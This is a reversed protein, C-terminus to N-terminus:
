RSAGQRDASEVATKIGAVSQRMDAELKVPWDILFKQEGDRGARTLIERMGETLAGMRFGHVLRSGGPVPSIEFSWVSQQRRGASDRMAWAFLQPPRAEIVESETSWEGRVVPAWAVVDSSRYNRGRFVSGAAGPAGSVWSGGQCEPSWEGSRALDSVYAFVTAPDAAVEIAVRVFFVDGDQRSGGARGSGALMDLVQGTSVVAACSRAAYDLALRHDAVSFDAVADAVLFPQIDMSFADVGTILCGVHAYVGAILLQDRGYARIVAALDSRAFASYRWKTLVTDGPAPRLEDIIRTDADAASMGDGWFDRLLGRQEPTMSGPQATYVVPIGLEAARERLRRANDVLSTLPEGGYEYPALFYAQLDHMLLIAREPEARWGAVNDPLSDPKPMPYSGIAPIGM